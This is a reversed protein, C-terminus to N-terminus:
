KSEKTGWVTLYGNSDGVYLQSQYPRWAVSLIIGTTKNFISTEVSGDNMNCIYIYGKHSGVAFYKKDSSVSITSGCYQELNKDTLTYVAEM